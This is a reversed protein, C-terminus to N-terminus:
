RRRTEAHPGNVMADVITRVNVIERTVLQAM